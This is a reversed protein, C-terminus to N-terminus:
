GKVNESRGRANRLVLNCSEIRVSARLTSPRVEDGDLLQACLVEAIQGERVVVHDKRMVHISGMVAREYCGTWQIRHTTGTWVRCCGPGGVNESGVRDNGKSCVNIEAHLYPNFDPGVRHHVLEAM